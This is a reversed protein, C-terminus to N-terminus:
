AERSKENFSYDFNDPAASQFNAESYGGEGERLAADIASQPINSSVGVPRRGVQPLSAVPVLGADQLNQQQRYEPDEEAMIHYLGLYEQLLNKLRIHDEIDHQYIKQM